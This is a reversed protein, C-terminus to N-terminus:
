CCPGAVASVQFWIRIHNVNKRLKCELWQKIVLLDSCVRTLGDITSINGMRM